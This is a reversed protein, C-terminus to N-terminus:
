TIAIDLVPHLEIINPANNAQGHDKDFFAVGTVTAARPTVTMVFPQVQDSDYAQNLDIRQTPAAVLQEPPLMAVDPSVHFLQEFFNM